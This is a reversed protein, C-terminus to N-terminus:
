RPKILDITHSSIGESRADCPWWCDRYQSDSIFMGQDKVILTEIMQTKVACVSNKNDCFDYTMFHHIVCSTMHVDQTILIWLLICYPYHGHWVRGPNLYLQIRTCINLLKGLPFDIPVQPNLLFSIVRYTVLSIRFHFGTVIYIFLFINKFGTHHRAMILCPALLFTLNTQKM